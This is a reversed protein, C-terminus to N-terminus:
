NQSVFFIEKMRQDFSKCQHPTKNPLGPINSLFDSMHKYVSNPKWCKWSIKSYPYKTAYHFPFLYYKRIHPALFRDDLNYNREKRQKKIHNSKSALRSYPRSTNIVNKETIMPNSFENIIQNEWSQQTSHQFRPSAPTEQSEETPKKGM